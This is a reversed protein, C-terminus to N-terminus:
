ISLTSAEHIQAVSASYFALTVCLVSVALFLTLYITNEEGIVIPITRRKAIKDGAIDGLDNLTTSIFVMLAPTLLITAVQAPRDWQLTLIILLNNWSACLSHLFICNVVNQDCIEEHSCNKTCFISRWEQAPTSFPM